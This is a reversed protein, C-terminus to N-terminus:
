FQIPSVDDLFDVMLRYHVDILVPLRDSQGSILRNEQKDISSAGSLVDYNLRV